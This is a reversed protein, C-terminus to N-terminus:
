SRFRDILKKFLQKLLNGSVSVVGFSIIRTVIEIIEPQNIDKQSLEWILPLIPIIFAYSMINTMSYLTLNLSEMFNLFVEKLQTGKELVDNFESEINEKRIVSLLKQINKESEGFLVACTAVLICVTQFENIQFNGNKIFENLPEMVGGVAAGWTALMKLNINIDKKASEIVSLAFTKLEEIDKTIKSEKSELVLYRYQQETIIVKM